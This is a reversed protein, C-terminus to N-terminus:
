GVARHWLASLRRGTRPGAAAGRGTRRRQRCPTLALAPNTSRPLPAGGALSATLECCCCCCSAAAAAAPFCCRSCRRRRGAGPPYAQGLLCCRLFVLLKYALHLSDRQQLLAEPGPAGAGGPAAAVAVGAEAEAEAAAAAAVLLLAGPTQHDRLARAFVSILAAFLRHRICLPILQRLPPPPRLQPAKPRLVM